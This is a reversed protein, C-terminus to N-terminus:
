KPPLVAATIGELPVSPAYFYLSCPSVGLGVSRYICTMASEAGGSLARYQVENRSRTALMVNDLNWRPHGDPSPAGSTLRGFVIVGGDDPSLQIPCAMYYLDTPDNGEKGASSQANAFDAWRTITFNQKAHYYFFEYVEWANLWPADIVLRVPKAGKERFSYHELITRCLERPTRTYDNLRSVIRQNFISHGFFVLGTAGAVLLPLLRAQKTYRATAEGLWGLLSALLFVLGVSQLSVQLYGWGWRLETQYKLSIATFLPPGFLLVAGAFLLRRRGIKNPGICDAFRLCALAGAGIGGILAVCLEPLSVDHWWNTMFGNPNFTACSFPFVSLFQILYTKPIARIAGPGVGWYTITPRSKLWFSLALYGITILILPLSKSLKTKWPFPELLALACVVPFFTLMFENCSILGLTYALPALLWACTNGTQGLGRCWFIVTWAGTTLLIPVFLFYSLVGDHWNRFQTLALLLILPLLGRAAGSLQRFLALISGLAAVWSAFHLLRYIVLNDGIATQLPLLALSWTVAPRGQQSVMYDLTELAYTQRSKGQLERRADLVSHGSDDFYFGAEFIPLSFALLTILLLFVSTSKSTM